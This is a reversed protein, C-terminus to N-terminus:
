IFQLQQSSDINTTEDLINLVNVCVLKDSVCIMSKIQSVVNERFDEYEKPTLDFINTINELMNIINEDQIQEKKVYIYLNYMDSILRRQAKIFESEKKDEFMTNVLLLRDEILTPILLLNKISQHNDKNNACYNIEKVIEKATGRYINILEEHGKKADYPLIYKNAIVSIITGIMVYIVRNVVLIDPSSTIAAAGLSSVTVCIILKKYDTLYSNIYGASILILGRISEDKIITFLVFFIASGILTAEVRQRSKSLCTESYTQTLSFVTFMIWRGDQLSFYDMIFGSVATLLGIKLAYSFRLSETNFNKKHISISKFKEPIELEKNKDTKTKNIKYENINEYINEKLNCLEYLDIDELDKKRKADEVNQEYELNVNNKLIDKIDDLEKNIIDLTKIKNEILDNITNNEFKANKFKYRNLILSVRDLSFLINLLNMGQETIFFGEKRNDYIIRKLEKSLTDIKRDCTKTGEKNKLLEIKSKLEDCILLINKEGLKQLKNKNFILQTFIIFAAGFALSIIRMPLQEIEISSSVMFLYQLGFPVYMPKRLEYNFFYGVIFLALFNCVLGIWMNQSALFALVGLILNVSLIKFFTTSLTSTLDRELFMLTATIVTVGILTNEEGFVSKFMVIFGLIFIFLFTKSVVVKKTM